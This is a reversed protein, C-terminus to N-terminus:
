HDILPSLSFRIDLSGCDETILHSTPGQKRREKTGEKSNTPLRRSDPPDPVATRLPAITVKQRSPHVIGLTDRGASKNGRGAEFRSKLIGCITQYLGISRAINSRTM